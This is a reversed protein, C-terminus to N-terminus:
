NADDVSQTGGGVARHAFRRVVAILTLSRSGPTARVPSCVWVRLRRSRFAASVIRVRPRAHWLLESSDDAAMIPLHLQHRRM